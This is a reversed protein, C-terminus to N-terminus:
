FVWNEEKQTTQEISAAEGFIRRYVELLKGMEVDANLVSAARRASEKLQALDGDTLRNLAAAVDAPEFTATVVGLGYECVVSRMAPSPGVCVALGAQIYEFFKNPLMMLTNYSSPEIVCLGVDYESVTPVIAGPSVPQRFHVRGPARKEALRRLEDIYGRDDEVLMFDLTFRPDTLALAEVLYHLGRGRKAFGHHILRIQAPNTVAARPPLRVPKPANRVVIPRLGFERRYREAIPECVTVSAAIPVDPNSIYSQLLYRIAPAVLLRWIGLRRDEEAYEHLHLVVRAGTRRAAAVAIPLAEWDNAHFADAGSAVAVEYAMRHRKLAWFWRDYCAPVIRGALHSALKVIKSAVGPKAEPVARWNLSPWDLDPEGHAIVTLDYEPALYDIQRLVHITTRAPKYAIVCIRKRSVSM